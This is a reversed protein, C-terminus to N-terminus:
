IRYIREANGRWLGYVDDTGYQATIEEYAAVLDGFSSYLSDIPWNTALMARSPGFTEITEEVFPRISAVTWSHDGMGLGSIKVAVNPASALQRLGRRWMQVYPDDRQLPLGAHGLVFQTDPFAEVLDYAQGMSEPVVGLDFSLELQALHTFGRRFGLDDFLGPEYALMRIGRVNAHSLHAELEARADSARLDSRAVIAQPFGHEDAISQLWRSEDVQNGEWDAQVHVAKAVRHGQYANLLDEILFNRKIPLYDGLYAAQPESWDESLWGHHQTDLNYLHIHADVMDPRATM